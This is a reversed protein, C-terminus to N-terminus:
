DEGHPGAAARIAALVSDISPSAFVGGLIAGSIMGDGVYGAHAPEHGSGGGSLITVQSRKVIDINRHLLVNYGKLKVLQGAHAAIVGEVMEEVVDEPSNLWKKATAAAM